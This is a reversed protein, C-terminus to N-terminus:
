GFVAQEQLIEKHIEPLPIQEEFLMLQKYKTTDEPEKELGRRATLVNGRAKNLVKEIVEDTWSSYRNMLIRKADEPGKIPNDQPNIGTRKHREYFREITKQKGYETLTEWPTFDQIIYYDAIKEVDRKREWQKEVKENPLYPRYAQDFMLISYLERVMARDNLKNM